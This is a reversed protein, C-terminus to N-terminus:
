IQVPLSFALMGIYHMTWIGLGMAAAGGALWLARPVGRAATVRGALDLAAYSALVAIAVSLAVLRYDYSGVLMMQPDPM